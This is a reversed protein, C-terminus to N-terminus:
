PESSPPSNPQYSFPPPISGENRCCATVAPSLLTFDTKAASASRSPSISMIAAPSFLTARNSLPPPRCGSNSCCPNAGAAARAGISAAVIDLAGDQNLDAAIVVNAGDLYDIISPVLQPFQGGMNRYWRITGDGLSASAIDNDGDGDLDASVVSQAAIANDAITIGGGFPADSLLQTADAEAAVVSLPMLALMLGFFFAAILGGSLFHIPRRCPPALHDFRPMNPHRWASTRVLLGDYQGRWCGVPDPVNQYRAIKTMNLAAIKAVDLADVRRSM